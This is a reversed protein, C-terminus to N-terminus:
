IDNAHLFRSINKLPSDKCKSGYILECDAGSRGMEEAEEYAKKESIEVEDDFSQHLSPSCFTSM